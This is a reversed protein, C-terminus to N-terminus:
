LLANTQMTEITGRIELEGLSKELNKSVIELARFVDGEHEVVNESGPTQKAKRRRESKSHTRSPCIRIQAYVMQNFSWIVTEHEIGLPDVGGSM